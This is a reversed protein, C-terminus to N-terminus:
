KKLNEIIKNIPFKNRQWIWQANFEFGSLLPTTILIEQNEQIMKMDQKPKHIEICHTKPDIIWVEKAGAALYKPLKKTIDMERTSNSLIEIIIDAIGNIKSESIKHYNEPLIIMLDPEPNWKESLRMVLRSGFVKGQNTISLYYNIFTLLYQFIEEHETSAPSHIVLVGDILEFNTDENAIQWFEEESYDPKFVIYDGKLLIQEPLDLIIEM